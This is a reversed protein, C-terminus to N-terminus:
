NHDIPVLKIDLKMGLGAALRKLTKLSPNATGRELKSIDGQAIGTRESLERQSLGLRSRSDSVNHAFEEDIIDSGNM